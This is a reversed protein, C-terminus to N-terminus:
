LQHIKLVIMKLIMTMKMVGLSALHTMIKMIMLQAFSKEM